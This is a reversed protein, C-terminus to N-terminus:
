SFCGGSNINGRKMSAQAQPTEGFGLLAMKDVDADTDTEQFGGSNNTAVNDEADDLVFVHETTRRPQSRENIFTTKKAGAQKWKQRELKGPAHRIVRAGNRM